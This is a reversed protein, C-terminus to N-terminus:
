PHLLHGFFYTYLSILVICILNLWFGIKLMQKMKILGSAYVIANPPTAIPFMFACSAGITLPLALGLKDSGFGAAIAFVIPIFVSVLAVNSMIETLFVGFFCILLVVLFLSSPNLQEIIQRILLVVETEKLGQALALGGGFLLIIGWPLNRTDEWNLLAGKEKGAPWAFFCIASAIAIMPDSLNKFVSWQNLQGRFIWLLATAGFIYLVRKESTGARGLKGLEREILPAIGAVKKVKLRFFVYHQLFVVSFFLLIALPLAFFLWSSFGLQMGTEQQYFSSLVLNPPTGVLTATGGINAAYAIGLLLSVGFTTATKEDGIKEKIFAIISMGIPLMMVSTATNSIWMSLLATAAMSGLIILNLKNGSYRLVNLAIRKHVMWKELALALVFGGLFLFIVPNAYNTATSRFDLIGLMPFLVLPLLATAGMPVAGSIWWVLMWLACALMNLQASTGGSLSVFLVFLLPGAILPLGKKLRM